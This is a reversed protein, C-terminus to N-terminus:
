RNVLWLVDFSSRYNQTAPDRGDGNYSVVHAFNEIAAELASKVANASTGTAAYVDVQLRYGELDPHQNLYNEPSGNIVQWVAYPKAVNQPAEGFPFLRVPNTGLLATVAANASCVSFIPAIM